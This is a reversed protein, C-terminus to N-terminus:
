EHAEKGILEGLESPDSHTVWGDEYCSKNVLRPNEALAANMETVEGSLPFSLESAAKVSDLVGFEDQKDLKTGIEPLSYYVDGLTEQLFQHKGSNWCLNRSDM